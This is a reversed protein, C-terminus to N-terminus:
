PLFDPLAPIKLVIGLLTSSCFTIEASVQTVCWEREVPESIHACPPVFSGLISLVSSGWDCARAWDQVSHGALSPRGLATWEAPLSVPSHLHSSRLLHAPSRRQLCCSFTRTNLPVLSVFPCVGICQLRSKGGHRFTRAHLSCGSEYGKVATLEWRQVSEM